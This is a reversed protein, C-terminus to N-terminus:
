DSKFLSRLSSTCSHSVFTYQILPFTKEIKFVHIARLTMWPVDTVIDEKDGFQLGNITIKEHFVVRIIHQNLWHEFVWVTIV